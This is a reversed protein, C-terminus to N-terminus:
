SAILAEHQIGRDVSQAGELGLIPSPAGLFGSDDGVFFNGFSALQATPLLCESVCDGVGFEATSGSKAFRVWSELM